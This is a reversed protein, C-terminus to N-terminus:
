IIPKDKSHTLIHINLSNSWSFRKSCIGCIYPKEKTHTRYHKTLNGSETFEKGCADCVYPKEGTHIKHHKKLRSARSFAKGCTECVHPKEGANQQKEQDRLHLTSANNSDSDECQMRLKKVSDAPMNEICEGHQGALIEYNSEEIEVVCGPIDEDESDVGQEQKIEIFHFGSHSSTQNIETDSDPEMKIGGFSIEVTLICNRHM